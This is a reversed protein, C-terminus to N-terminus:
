PGFALCDAGTLNAARTSPAFDSSLGVVAFHHRASSAAPASAAATSFAHAAATSFAHPRDGGAHLWAINSQDGNDHNLMDAVPVMVFSFSGYAVHGRWSESMTGGPLSTSPPAQPDSIGWNRSFVITKAWVWLPFSHTKANYRSPFLHFLLPMLKNYEQQLAAELRRTMLFLNSDKGADLVRALPWFATSGFSQPMMCLYPWYDSAAGKEREQLLFLALIAFSDLNPFSALVARLETHNAAQPSFLLEYPVAVLVDGQQLDRAAKLGRRTRERSQSGEPAAHDEFAFEGLEVNGTFAGRRRAWEFLGADSCAPPSRSRERARTLALGVSLVAAAGVACAALERTRARGM